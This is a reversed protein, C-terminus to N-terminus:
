WRKRKVIEWAQVKDKDIEKWRADVNRAYERKARELSASNKVEEVEFGNTFGSKITIKIKNV